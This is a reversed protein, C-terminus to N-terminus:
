LPHRLHKHLRQLSHRDTDETTRPEGYLQDFTIISDFRYPDQDLASQHWSIIAYVQWYLLGSNVTYQLASNMHMAYTM